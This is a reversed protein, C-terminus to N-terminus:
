QQEFIQLYAAAINETSLARDYIKLDDFAGYMPYASGECSGIGLVRTSTTLIMDKSAVETGNIYLRVTKGNYIAALHMWQNIPIAPKATQTMFSNSKKGDGSNFQIRGYFFTLRFGPGRTGTNTIIDKFKRYIKENRVKSNFKIIMLVSFPRTFDMKLGPLLMSGPKATSAVPPKFVLAKGLIGDIWKYANNVPLLKGVTKGAVPVVTKSDPTNFDWHGILGPEVTEARLSAFSLFIVLAAILNKM